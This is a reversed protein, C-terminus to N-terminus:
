GVGVETFCVLDTGSHYSALSCLGSYDLFLSCFDDGNSLHICSRSNAEEALDASDAFLSYLVIRSPQLFIFSMSVPLSARSGVM